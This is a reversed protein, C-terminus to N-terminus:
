MVSTNECFPKLFRNQYSVISWYRIRYRHRLICMSLRWETCRRWPAVREIRNLGHEIWILWRLMDSNNENTWWSLLVRLIIRILMWYRIPV